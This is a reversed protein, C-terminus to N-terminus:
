FRPLLRPVSNCTHVFVILSDQTCHRPQHNNSSPSSGRNNAMVQNEAEREQVLHEIAQQLVAVEQEKSRMVETVQMELSEIDGMLDGCSELEGACIAITYHGRKIKSRNEGSTATYKSQLSGARKALNDEVRRSGSRVQLAQQCISKNLCATYPM